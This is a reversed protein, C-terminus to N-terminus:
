ASFPIVVDKKHKTFSTSSSILNLDNLHVKWIYLDKLSWWQEIYRSVSYFGNVYVTDKMFAGEKSPDEFGRKLRLMFTFVREYDDDYFEALHKILRRYSHKLAYQVFYYREFISYYKRDRDSVFRNQNYIAIGEDTEIYKATGRALISFDSKRGNVKRLYHGEIEHAIISRMERKWVTAWKRFMLTDGKMTFRAASEAEIIKVKINYIHNFKKMYDKIDGYTLIEEEERINDRSAIVDKSKLFNEEEIDWFIKKSYLTMDETNQDRFARLFRIKDVVEEQKRVYIEWLPIDPIEIARIEAYLADLDLDIEQYEFSPIYDGRKEIFIQKQEVINTPTLYKLILLKKDIKMISKDLALLQSEHTKTIATNKSKKWVGEQLFPTEWKKYKYPDILFWKLAQKGLRIKEGDLNELVFRLIRKTGLIECDLRISTKEWVEMKLVERVFEIDIFSELSSVRIDAIYNYTKEEYTMKLYEQSGAVKKGSLNKIKEEIDWSFLDRGLRVWKEVSNIDVGEVKDLRVRLPAINVNQIEPGPRVNIELLLPGSSEDLVVDCGLFKIWTVQQVQVALSLVKDWEPIIIGRVDGIGPISKVIKRHRYIYTIRWTGIDIWAACAGVHINAKWESEATPIRIMAMVPVMNYAIIRIDPLGFKWLLEVEKTLVIKKEIIVQDRGWSLSFFGDLIYIFHESLEQPTFSEGSNTIFKWEASLSDIVLIGKGGYWNNPKVVFPPEYMKIKEIDVESHKKILGLTEPVAVKHSALFKKTSLKSDALKKAVAFDGGKIYKLNRANLGLIGYSRFFM